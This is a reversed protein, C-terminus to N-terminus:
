CEAAFPVAPIDAGNYLNVQYWDGQAFAVKVRGEPKDALTIELRDGDAKATYAAAKGDCTLDLAQVKEGTIKLGSGANAFTVTIKKGDRQVAEAAPAECLLEEGYIHNRALLALRHGVTRKDKPHIDREEGVDAISALYVGDVTDAVEQQCRRITAYDENRIDLWSRWGPLQVILFPLTQDRWVERWDAILGTLMATYLQQLGTVDDSEGQYWLVGRATYPATKRVMHEYLCGPRTKADVIERSAPIGGPAASDSEIGAQKMMQAFFAQIEEASPTRPLIFADFPGVNPNGRDNMPNTRQEKWYQEMDLDAISDEYLRIWPKGVREITEPKMWACSRSGGWNCGVIGVPVSLKEAIEKQFYYGVASFCTLDDGEAKRWVAVNDYNFDQDQGEYCIEPVDYFRLNENVTGLEKDRYKEFRMPFEMNSQGGAIWVEGVAVDGICLEEGATKVVLTERDSATLPTLVAEWRGQADAVAKTSQGQISVTVEEGAAASGWIVVPKERQLIMGESFIAATQLM